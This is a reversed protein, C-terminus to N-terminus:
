GTKKKVNREVSQFCCRYQRLVLTVAINSKVIQFLRERECVCVRGCVCLLDQQYVCRRFPTESVSIYPEKASMCPEKASLTM